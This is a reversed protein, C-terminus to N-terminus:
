RAPSGSENALQTLVAKLEAVTARLEALETQEAKRSASAPPNPSAADPRVSHNPGAYTYPGDGHVVIESKDPEVVLGDSDHRRAKVEWDFQQTSNPNDSYVEFRGNRIRAGAQTRVALRDFGDIATLQVTRGEQQTLSEFYDPLQVVARGGELRASGRYFVSVEPGEIAVHVLHKEPKVPHPLIFSKFAYTRENWITIAGTASTKFTILDGNGGSKMNAAPTGHYSNPSTFYPAQSVGWTYLNGNVSVSGANDMFMVSSSANNRIHFGGLGYNLYTVNDTWRPWLWQEYAGSSNKAWMTAQNAMELNGDLRVTGAVHLKNGPSTTGIGVRGDGALTLTQVNGVGPSSSGAATASSNVYFDIANGPDNAAANHRSRIFHRYGGARYALSLAVQDSTGNADAGAQIELKGAPTTSGIGVRGTGKIRMTETMAASSGAGFVIDSATSDTHIQLVGGQIGFGYTNGGQGWLSIKDGVADAFGLPFGPTSTGIGLNNNIVQNGTFTNGGARLAVNASLRADPVTGTTLAAGDVILAKSALFSYPSALLRLRPLINVDAGGGGIGKVTIGVWRESATANTFVTSLAPRAEGISSGEGLIVSFYGKDVTVTQQETWLRNGAATANPDNWIRFIVDYNKPANTALATGNADVLYGQYAMREPPNANAQAFVRPAVAFGALALLTFVVRACGPASRLKLM